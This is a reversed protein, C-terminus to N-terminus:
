IVGRQELYCILDYAAHLAAVNDTGYSNHFSERMSLIDRDPTGDVFRVVEGYWGDVYTSTECDFCFTGIMNSCDGYETTGTYETGLSEETESVNMSINIENARPSGCETNLCKM